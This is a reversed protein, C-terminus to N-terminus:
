PSKILRNIRNLMQDRDVLSEVRLSKEEIGRENIFIVSPVGKVQYRRLLEEQFPHKKTLDVRLPLFYRSQAVIEPDGFVKEDMVKCPGCWDAYFDLVVPMNKEAAQTLANRDYPIWSVGEGSHPVTFFVIAAGVALVIGLVKKVYSFTRLHRGSKELWGLHIAAATLITGLLLSEGLRGGALPRLFSGAMYVLVWGLVKRIWIMWEGSMPLTKLGTSFMALVLLPLGLGISLVFFCVFGLFPDGKQAVYTLLGLILPGVCPAAVVGLTLGMFLSGPYGGMNKSALRNLFSPVRIEWLGFFSLGLLVLIAAVALLVAPSQLVSGLMNGSLSATVGLVSNTLALGSIYLLGHVLVRGQIRSSKGGFYSVTIPILPYICPTLNLALGALFFGFLTLWLGRGSSSESSSLDISESGQISKGTSFSEGKGSTISLPLLIPIKEPAMCSEPSCAQYFFEGKIVHSGSPADQELVISARIELVGAYVLVPEKAYEFKKKVPKPFLVDEVRIAGSSEFSIRTPILDDGNSDPGHIYWPPPISIRFLVPYRGGAEYQEGSRIIELQAVSAIAASSFSTLGLLFILCAWIM